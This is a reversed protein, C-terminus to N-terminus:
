RRHHATHHETHHHETHHHVVHHHVDHHHYVYHHDGSHHHYVYHHDHAHHYHYHDATHHNFRYHDYHSGGTQYYHSGGAHYYHSGGTYYYTSGPAYSYTGGSYVPGVQETVYEAGYGLGELEAVASRAQALSRTTTYELWPSGAGARYNVVYTEWAGRAPSVFPSLAVLGLLALAALRLRLTM